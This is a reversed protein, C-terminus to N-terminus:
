YIESEISFETPVYYLPNESVMLQYLNLAATANTCFAQFCQYLGKYLTFYSITVMVPVKHTKRWQLVQYMIAAQYIHQTGLHNKKKLFFALYLIDM